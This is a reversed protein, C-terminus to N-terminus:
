MARTGDGEGSTASYSVYSLGRCVAGPNATM